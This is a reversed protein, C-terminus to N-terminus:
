GGLCLLKLSGNQFVQIFAVRTEWDPINLKHSFLKVNGKIDLILIEFIM